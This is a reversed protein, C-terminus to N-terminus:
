HCEPSHNEAAPSDQARCPPPLLLEPVQRISALLVGDGTIVFLVRWVSDGPPLIKGPLPLPVFVVARGSRYQRGMGGRDQVNQQFYGVEMEWGLGLKIKSMSRVLM